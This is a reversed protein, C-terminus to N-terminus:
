ALKTNESGAIAEGTISVVEGKAFEPLEATAGLRININSSEPLM